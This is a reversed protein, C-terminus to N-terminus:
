KESGEVFPITIKELILETAEDNIDEVHIIQADVHKIVDDDKWIGKFKTSDKRSRDKLLADLMKLRNDLDMKKDNSPHVFVKMTLKIPYDVIQKEYHPYNTMM